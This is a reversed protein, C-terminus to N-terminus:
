MSSVHKFVQKFAQKCVEKSMQRNQIAEQRNRLMSRTTLSGVSASCESGRDTSSPLMDRGQGPHRAGITQHHYKRYSIIASSPQRITDFKLTM